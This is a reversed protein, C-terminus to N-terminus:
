RTSLLRGECNKRARENQFQFQNQLPLELRTGPSVCGNAMVATEFTAAASFAPLDEIMQCVTPLGKPSMM